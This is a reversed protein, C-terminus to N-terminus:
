PPRRATLSIRLMSSMNSLIYISDINLYTVRIEQECSTSLAVLAKIQSLNGDYTVLHTYCGEGGCTEVELPSESDHSIKTSTDGACFKPNKKSNSSSSNNNNSSSSSSSSNNNNYNNNKTTKTTAAAAAAAAATTKPQTLTFCGTSSTNEKGHQFDCFVTIPAEGQDAGDPDIEYEGSVTEGVKAYGDCTTPVACCILM